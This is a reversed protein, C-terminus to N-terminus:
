IQNPQFLALPSIVSLAAICLRIQFSFSFSISEVTHQSCFGAAPASGMTTTRRAIAIVAPSVAGVLFLVSLCVTEFEEIIEVDFTPSQFALPHNSDLPITINKGASATLTM